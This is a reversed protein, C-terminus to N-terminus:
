RDPARHHRSTRRPRLPTEAWPNHLLNLGESFTEWEESGYDGVVYGFQQGEVANPDPDVITGYRIM